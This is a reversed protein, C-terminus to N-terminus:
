ALADPLKQAKQLLRPLQQNPRQQEGHLATLVVLGGTLAPGHEAPPRARHCAAGPPAARVPEAVTM